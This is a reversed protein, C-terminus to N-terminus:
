FASVWIWEAPEPGINVVCHTEIGEFYLSDGDSMRYTTRGVRYEIEGHLVFAFEEGMHSMRETSEGPQLSYFAAYMRGLYTRTLQQIAHGSVPHRFEPRENQRVLGYPTVTEEDQFFDAIPVRLTDAIRKLAMITPGALGREIQSLYGTTIDAAHAVEELTMQRRKRIGRIERGIGAFVNDSESSLPPSEDDSTLPPVSASIAFAQQQDAM